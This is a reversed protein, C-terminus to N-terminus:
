GILYEVNVDATVKIEGAEIPTQAQVVSKATPAYSDVNAYLRPPYYGGVTIHKVGTITV